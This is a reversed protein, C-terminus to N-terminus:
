GRMALRQEQEPRLTPSAEVLYLRLARRFEPVAHPPACHLDSMLVGRGPGLEAVIVPDPRGM